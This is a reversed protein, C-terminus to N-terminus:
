IDSNKLIKFDRKQMKGNIVKGIYKDANWADGFNNLKRIKMSFILM